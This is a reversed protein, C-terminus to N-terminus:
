LREQVWEIKERAARGSNVPDLRQAEKFAALAERFRGQVIYWDGRAIYIRGDYPDLRRAKELTREFEDGLVGRMLLLQALSAYGAATPSLALARRLAAESSALRECRGYISAAYYWAHGDTPDEQLVSEIEAVAEEHQGDLSKIEADMVRQWLPLMDKPDLVGIQPASSPASAYGLAALRQLDEPARATAQEIVQELPTARAMVAALRADLEAIEAPAAAALNNLEGPDTRLDFYEPRPAQIYKDHLRRLGHLSSWGNNLRSAMTEIYIARDPDLPSALLHRGDLPGPAPIGLLDLVTPLIDALSVVRDEIVQPAGFLAPNHLILPVRMTSDYILYAHTPEGHENLGEGHDGVIVILTRQYAGNRQLLELVRGVQADVYAIEGDYPQDPFQQAFERPPTYPFHADFYHIWAFFPRGSRSLSNLWRLAPNTVAVAPRCNADANRAPGNAGDRPTSVEDYTEFGQALGFRKDLIFSGIFAATAYGQATLIEALTTQDEALRFGNDRVGHTPPELGTMMTAHSPMTLPAPAIAQGFRLGAGALADLNPTRAAAYGYCGLHDARVTDLTVFLLNFGAAAGTGRLAGDRTGAVSGPARFIRLVGLAGGAALVLALGVLVAPRWLRRRPLHVRQESAPTFRRGPSTRKTRRRAM